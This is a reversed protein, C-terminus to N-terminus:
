KAGKYRDAWMTTGFMLISLVLAVYVDFADHYAGFWIIGLFILFVLM